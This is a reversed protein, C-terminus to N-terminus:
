SRLRGNLYVGAKRTAETPGTSAAELLDDIGERADAMSYSKLSYINGDDGAVYLRIVGSDRAFVTKRGFKRAYVILGEDPKTELQDGFVRKVKALAAGTVLEWHHNTM